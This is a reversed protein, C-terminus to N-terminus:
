SMKLQEYTQEINDKLIKSLSVKHFHRDNFINLMFSLNTVHPTNSNGLVLIEPYYITYTGSIFGTQYVNAQLMIKGPFIYITGGSSNTLPISLNERKLLNSVDIVEGLFSDTSLAVSNDNDYSNISEITKRTKTSLM